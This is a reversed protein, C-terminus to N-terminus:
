QEKRILTKESYVRNGSVLTVIYVGNMAGSGIEVTQGGAASVERITQGAMNRIYLTGNQGEKLGIVAQYNGGSRTVTFLKDASVPPAPLGNTSLLLMFRKSYDGAKLYFRYAANLRLDSYTNKEKDFLFISYASPLQDISKATFSIWGDKLTQIGVPIGTLSDSPLPMGSISLRQNDDSVTYMNPVSPDTNMLKLADSESDFGTTAAPDFYLVLPDKLSQAADFAASFRLIKRADADASKFTPNPKDIRVNNNMGLTGSSQGSSVHVFFGQMAPIINDGDAGSIGNTYSTYVGSYEDGSASFFYIAGDINTRTWGSSANWDIPSPYPNGVLNFGQTYTRNHNYLTTSYDGNNVTGSVSILASAATSGMNVAYGEMVNLPNSTTTYSTWGSVANGSNLRNEDYRYVQPITATTSLYSSLQGITGNSFPSSIYKYGFASSLYRQITVSGTVTGSGNGSILATQGSTSLLTLHGNSNLPGNLPTIVGSVNLAGQLTVGSTNNVTLNQITNGQFVSPPIAQPSSGNLEITGSSATIAGMSSTAISGYIHLTNGTVALTAASELSLSRATGEAGASLLPYRAKGNSILVDTSAAPLEGCEWNVPNNWDTSVAGTWYGSRNVSVAVAESTVTSCSGAVVVDYSGADSAEPNTLTLSSTGQGSIISNNSV